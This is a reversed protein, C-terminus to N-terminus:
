LNETMRDVIAKQKDTLDNYISDTDLLVGKGNRQTNALYSYYYQLVLNKPLTRSHWSYLHALRTSAQTVGKASLQQLYGVAEDRLYMYELPYKLINIVKRQIAIDLNQTLLFQSLIHGERAAKLMVFFPDRPTGLDKCIKSETLGLDFYYQNFWDETLKDEPTSIKQEFKLIHENARQCKMILESIEIQHKPVDGYYNRITQIVDSSDNRQKSLLNDVARIKSGADSFSLDQVIQANFRDIEDTVEQIALVQHQLKNRDDATKTDKVEQTQATNFNDLKIKKKSMLFFSIMFVSSIFILLSLFIKKNM